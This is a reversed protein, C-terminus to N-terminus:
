SFSDGAKLPEQVVNFYAGSLDRKHKINIQSGDIIGKNNNINFESMISDFVYGIYYKGEAIYPLNTNLYADKM